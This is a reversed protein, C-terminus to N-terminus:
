GAKLLHTYSVPGAGTALRGLAATTVASTTHIQEIRSVLETSNLALAVASGDATIARALNSM